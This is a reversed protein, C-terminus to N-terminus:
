VSHFGLLETLRSYNIIAYSQKQNQIENYRSWNWESPHAVVGTRVMNMDIYLLCKVLHTDSEIVTAHYRDEWYAGRRKKRRNYEQGDKYFDALGWDILRLEKTAHNIIINIPKVDRHMIGM